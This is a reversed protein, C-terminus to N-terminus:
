LSPSRPEIGASVIKKGGAETDLGAKPGVWGGTWYIGPTRERPPPPLATPAHRQGSVGDLASTLFSYSSYQREGRTTKASLYIRGRSSDFVSKLSMTRIISATLAKSLRDIEVLSCPAIDWFVTVKQRASAKQLETLVCGVIVLCVVLSCSSLGLTRGIVSLHSSANVSPKRDGRGWM